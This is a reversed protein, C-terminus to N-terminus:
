ATGDFADGVLVQAWRAPVSGDAGRVCFWLSCARQNDRLVMLDGGRGRRPLAVGEAGVPLARATVGVPSPFAFGVEHPVIEVQAAETSEFQGGRSERGIGHGRVGPGSDGQGLIGVNGHGRVGTGIAIAGGYVGADATEGLNPIPMDGAL